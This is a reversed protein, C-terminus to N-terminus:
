YDKLVMLTEDLQLAANDLRELGQCFRTYNVKDTEDENEDIAGAEKAREIWDKGVEVEHQRRLRMNLLATSVNDAVIQLSKPGSISWLYLMSSPNHQKGQNINFLGIYRSRFLRHLVERTDKAPVMAAEAIADSEMHGNAQLISCIRAAVEGHSDLIIQHVIRSQLYNVLKNTTIQFKAQEPRGPAVEVENVVVPNDCKVCLEQLAKFINQIVGGAKKEFNQLVTKPLYRTLDEPCFFHQAEYDQRQNDQLQAHTRYASLKLAATVISGASQVRHGYREAVLWGLSVARLSDHFMRINVRWVADRPLIKYPGSQLLSLVAPDDAEGSEDGPADPSLRPRKAPPPMTAGNENWEFEADEDEEETEDLLPSVQHIFGGAVLRRFSEMVAQRFTYRSSTNGSAAAATPSTESANTEKIQQLQDVTAVIADVTKMRGQVLLEEILTAATEDLAKKTYEVFRPYRPLIRAREAHFQYHYIKRSKRVRAHNNNSNSDSNNNRSNNGHSNSNSKTVTVISHQILVLLAARIVPTSASDRSAHTQLKSVRIIELREKTRGEAKWAVPIGKKQCEIYITNIIQSLTSTGGRAQLADAVLQVMPGFADRIVNSALSITPDHHISSLPSTHHFGAFQSAMAYCLVASVRFCFRRHPSGAICTSSFIPSPQSFKNTPVDNWFFNKSLFASYPSMVSSDHLLVPLHVYDM